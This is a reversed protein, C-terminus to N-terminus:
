MAVIEIPDRGDCPLQSIRHILEATIPVPKIDVLIWRTSPMAIKQHGTNYHPPSSFASNVPPLTVAAEVKRLWDRPQLTTFAGETSQAMLESNELHTFKETDALNSDEFKIIPIRGTATGEFSVGKPLSLTIGKRPPVYKPQKVPARVSQTEEMEAEPEIEKIITPPDEEQVNSEIMITKGKEKMSLKGVRPNRLSMRIPGAAPTNKKTQLTRPLKPIEAISGEQPPPNQTAENPIAIMKVLNEQMDKPLTKFWPSERLRSEDM